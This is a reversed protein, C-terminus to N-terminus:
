DAGNPTILSMASRYLQSPSPAPPGPPLLSAPRPRRCLLDLCGPRPPSPQHWAVRRAVCVTDTPHQTPRAPGDTYDKAKERVCAHARVCMCLKHRPEYKTHRSAAPTAECPQTRPGAHITCRCRELAARKLQLCARLAGGEAHMREITATSKRVSDRAHGTRVSPSSVDREEHV